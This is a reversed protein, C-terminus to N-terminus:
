EVTCLYASIPASDQICEDAPNNEITSFLNFYLKSKLILYLFQHFQFFVPANDGLPCQEM